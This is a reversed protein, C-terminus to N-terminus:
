KNNNGGGEIMKMMEDTTLFVGKDVNINDGPKDKPMQKYQLDLMRHQLEMLRDNAEAISKMLTAVVEYARPSDSEEALEILKPLAKMGRQVIEHYNERSTSYDTQIHKDQGEIRTQVRILSHNTTPETTM